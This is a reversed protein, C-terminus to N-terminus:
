RCLTAARKLVIDLSSTKILKYDENSQFHKSTQLDDVIVTMFAQVSAWFTWGTTMSLVYWISEIEHKLDDAQTVRKYICLVIYRIM